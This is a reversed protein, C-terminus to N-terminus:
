AHLALPGRLLLRLAVEPNQVVVAEDRVPARVKRRVHSGVRPGACLVLALAQQFDDALHPGCACRGQEVSRGDAASSRGQALWPKLM